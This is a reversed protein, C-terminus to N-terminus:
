GHPFTNSELAKALKYLLRAVVRADALVNSIRAYEDPKHATMDCTQWVVAAIGRKRFYRAVTGGGIGIPKAEVGRDERIAEALSRVLPHSPRTPSGAADKMVPEIEIQAGTAAAFSYALSKFTSLVEEISRSPLIRCDWYTTDIGPITNVNGVNAERKTPEFTSVPPIFMPDYESYLTHLAKDLELNFLMGLRAANLGLHPLSAHAQRGKVVVKVWLLHKEAVEIESGDRSCYDPVLIMDDNKFLRTEELLHKVGYQSGAEEDAVFALGLPLPPEVGEEVLARLLVLSMIVAQLNDEAGRGYVLDGEVTAQFPPKSWLRPDGEPVTDIHSIIWFRPRGHGLKVVLNPRVGGEARPDRADYREVSVGLKELEEQLAEARRLEGRGGFDPPVAELPILRRYLTIIYDRMGDIRQLLRELSM